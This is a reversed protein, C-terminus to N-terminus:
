EPPRPGPVFLARRHGLLRQAWVTPMGDPLVLDAREVIERFAPSDHAEMVMHVNTLTVYRGVREASWALVQEAAADLSALSIGVSVVHVRPDPSTRRPAAPPTGGGGLGDGDPQAAM